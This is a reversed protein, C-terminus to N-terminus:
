ATVVDRLVVKQCDEPLSAFAIRRGLHPGPMATSHQGFGQPHFPESSMGICAFLNGRGLPLSPCGDREDMYVVTYRDFSEGGNDYCAIRVGKVTETKM